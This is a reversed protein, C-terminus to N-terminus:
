AYSYDIYYVVSIETFLHIVNQTGCALRRNTYSIHFSSSFGKIQCQVSWQLLM